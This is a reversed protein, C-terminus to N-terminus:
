WHCEVWWHSPIHYIYTHPIYTDGTVNWGGTDRCATMMITNKL